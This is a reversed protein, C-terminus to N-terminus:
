GLRNSFFVYYFRRCTGKTWTQAVPKCQPNFFNAFALGGVRGVTEFGIYKNKVLVRAADTKGLGKVFLAVKQEPFRQLDNITTGAGAAAGGAYTRSYAGLAVV